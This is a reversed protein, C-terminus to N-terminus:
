HRQVVPSAALMVQIVPRGGQFDSINYQACADLTAATAAIKVVDGFKWQDRFRMTTELLFNPDPLYQFNVSLNVPLGDLTLCPVALDVASYVNQFKIFYFFPPGSCAVAAAAGAM